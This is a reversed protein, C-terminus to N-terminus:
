KVLEGQKTTCQGAAVVKAILDWVSAFSFGLFLGLAGGTEAV